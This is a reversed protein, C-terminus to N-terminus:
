PGNGMREAPKARNEDNNRKPRPKVCPQAGGRGVHAQRHILIVVACMKHIQVEDRGKAKGILIHLFDLLRRTNGAHHVAVGGIHKKLHVALFLNGAYMAQGRILSRVVRIVEVPRHQNLAAQGFFAALADHVLALAVQAPDLHAVCDRKIGRGAVQRVGQATLFVRDDPQYIGRVINGKGQTGGGNAVARQATVDIHRFGVKEGFKFRVQMNRDRARLLKGGKIIGVPARHRRDLRRQLFQAPVPGADAIVINEALRLLLEIIGLGSIIFVLLLGLRLKVAGLPLEVIRPPLDGFILLLERFAAALELRAAAAQRVRFLLQLLGLLFIVRAHLLKLRM